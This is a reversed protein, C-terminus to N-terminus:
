SKERVTIHPPTFTGPNDIHFVHFPFEKGATYTFSSGNQTWVGVWLEYTGTAAFKPVTIEPYFHKDPAQAVTDGSFQPQFGIQNDPVHGDPIHFTIQVKTLQAADIGDFNIEFKVISGPALPKERTGQAQSLSCALLVTLALRLRLKTNNM